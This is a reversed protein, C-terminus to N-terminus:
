GKVYSLKAAIKGERFHFVDVGRVHGGIDDWRYIWRVFGRTESTFAEEAEFEANPNEEFFKAFAARVETQGNYRVGDPAPTTNEFICDDTMLGMVVDLAQDNFAGNFRDLLAINALGASEM